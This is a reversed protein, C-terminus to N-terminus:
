RGLLLNAAAFVALTKVQQLNDALPSLAYDIVKTRLVRRSPLILFTGCRPLAFSCYDRGM